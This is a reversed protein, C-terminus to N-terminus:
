VCPGASGTASRTYRAAAAAPKPQRRQGGGQAMQRGNRCGIDLPQTSDAYSIQMKAERGRVKPAQDPM